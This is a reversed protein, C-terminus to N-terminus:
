SEVIASCFHWSHGSIKCTHMYFVWRNQYSYIYSKTIHELHSWLWEFDSTAVTAASLQSLWFVFDKRFKFNPIHTDSRLLFSLSLSLSSFLSNLLINNNDFNNLWAILYIWRCINLQWIFFAWPLDSKGFVVALRFSFFSFLFSDPGLVNKSSVIFDVIQNSKNPKLTKTEKHQIRKSHRVLLFAVSFFFVIFFNFYQCNKLTYQFTKECM